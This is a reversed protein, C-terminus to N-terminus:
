EKRNVSKEVSFEGMYRRRLKIINEEAIREMTFGLADCAQAIYWLIDGIEQRLATTDLPHGHYEVKKIMDCFEGTEGSLGLCANLLEEKSGSIQGNTQMAAKQYESFNM